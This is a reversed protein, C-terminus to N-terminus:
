QKQEKEAVVQKPTAAASVPKPATYVQRYVGRRGCNHYATLWGPNQTEEQLPIVAGCGPCNITNSAM